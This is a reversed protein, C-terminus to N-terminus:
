REGLYVAKVQPDARVEDPTGACIIAGHALVTVHEAVGFVVKMDHETILVSCGSERQVRRILAAIVQSEEPPVGATPEDLLLLKPSLALCMAIELKKRDGQSLQGAVRDAQDALGVQELLATVEAADAAQRARRWFVGSRRRAVLLATRINDAATRSGFLHAVQFVRSIGLRARAHPTLSTIDEGALVVQGSDPRIQGAVMSFLTSKGAGNPGIVAAITSPSVSLNVNKVVVNRGYSKTLGVLSLAADDASM